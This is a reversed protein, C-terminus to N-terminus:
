YQGLLDLIEELTKEEPDLSDQHNVEITTNKSAYHYTGDSFASISVFDVDYGIPMAEYSDCFMELDANGYLGVVSNIDSFIAFVITNENTYLEPLEICTSTIQDDGLSIFRDCNIWDLRDALFDYGLGEIVDSSDQWIWENVQVNDWTNPNGDLEFWSLPDTSWLFQEMDDVPNADPTQVRIEVGNVLQLEEGAANTASFEYVGGTEIIGSETVTPKNYLVISGKDKIEVYTFIIDQNSLPNGSADQFALGPITIITELDTIITIGDNVNFTVSEDQTQVQDFFLQIDGEKQTATFIVDDSYCGCVLLIISAFPLWRLIIKKLSM